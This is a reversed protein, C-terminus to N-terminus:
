ECLDLVTGKANETARTSGYYRNIIERYYDSYGSNRSYVSTIVQDAELAADYVTYGEACHEYFASLWTNAYSIRITNKWGISSFAGKKIAEDVLNYGNADTVGSNCGCFVLLSMNISSNPITSIARDYSTMSNNTGAYLNTMIPTSYPNTPLTICGAGAHNYITMVETNAMSNLVSNATNDPYPPYGPFNMDWLYGMVASGITISDLTNISSINSGFYKADKLPYWKVRLKYMSDSYHCYHSYVRIYYNTDPKVHLRLMEDANGIQNTRAYKQVTDYESIILDYNCGEPINGLWFNAMGEEEFSIVWFDQDDYSTIAGYNDYDDYTRDAVGTYHNRETEYLIGAASYVPIITTSLLVCLAILLLFLKINKM